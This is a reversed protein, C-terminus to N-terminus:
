RLPEAMRRYLARVYTIAALPAECHACFRWQGDGGRRLAGMGRNFGGMPGQGAVDITWDLTFQTLMLGPLAEKAAIVQWRFRAGLNIRGTAAWYARLGAWDSIPPEHEEAIYFPAPDDRDWLQEITAWDNVEFAAGMREYLAQAQAILAAASM